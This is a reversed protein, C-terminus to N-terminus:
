IWLNNKNHGVRERLPVLETFENNQQTTDFKRRSPPEVLKRTM